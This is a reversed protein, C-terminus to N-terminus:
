GGYTKEYLEVVKKIDRNKQVFDWQKDSLEGRFNKDVILKELKKYWDSYKNKAYYGVEKSYPLVKSALTPTGVAAYEYFKVCSKAQNFKNDKLPAIGIDLNCDGLLAPYLEPSYFPVHIFKIKKLKEYLEMISEFYQKREPEAEQRLIQRCQYVYDILPSGTLGQLLFEFEYKQQLDYIVDLILSVDGWHSAAGTYGIRLRKNEEKRQTFKDFPLANPIIVVNKNFEQLKKKLVETTTTVVDSAKLLGEAQAIRDASARSTEAPNNSNVNWVEDDMDCVVRKGRKKFEEISPIVDIAYGRGYVVVDPWTLWEEVVERGLALYRVEHGKERLAMGPFRVRYLWCGTKWAYQSNLMFLIKM